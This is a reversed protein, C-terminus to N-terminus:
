GGTSAFWSGGGSTVFVIPAICPDPLALDGEFKANGGGASAPGTTAPFTDTMVNAITADSRLCSVIARFPNVPNSGASAGAALVLGEVKVTLHGDTTLVVKGSALTWPIGGGPVGRIANTAGSFAQPVGVMSDAKLMNSTGASALGSQALLGVLLALLIAISLTRSKTM